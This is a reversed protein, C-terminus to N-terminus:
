LYGVTSLVSISPFSPGSPAPSVRGQTNHSYECAMPFLLPLRCLYQSTILTGTYCIERIRSM